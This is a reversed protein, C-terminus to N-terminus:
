ESMECLGGVLAGATVASCAAAMHQVPACALAATTALGRRWRQLEPYGRGGSATTAASFRAAAYPLPRSTPPMRHVLAACTLWTSRRTRHLLRSGGNGGGCCSLLTCRAAEGWEAQAQALAWWRLQTCPTRGVRHSCPHLCGIGQSRGSSCSHLLSSSSTAPSGSLRSQSRHLHPPAGSLPRGDPAAGPRSQLGKQMRQRTRCGVHRSAGIQSARGGGGGGKFRGTGRASCARLRGLDTHRHGQSGTVGRWVAPRITTTCCGCSCLHPVPRQAAASAQLSHARWQHQM